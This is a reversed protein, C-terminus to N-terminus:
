GNYGTHLGKREGNLYTISLRDPARMVAAVVEMTREGYKAMTRSTAKYVQTNDAEHSLQLLRVAKLAREQARQTRAAQRINWLSFAAFLVIAAAAFLGYRSSYRSFTFTSM